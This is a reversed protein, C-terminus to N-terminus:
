VRATLQALVTPLIEPLDEAILGPGFCRACEVHLWAAWCAAHFPSFGRALLGCILGALVDGAGATALWPAAREYCAAHLAVQGDPTAIVTDAGKLLVTCGIQQAAARVADLKSYVPGRDPPAALKAAIKPFLRAFEGAHPTLVTNARVAVRLSPAHALHTLADADLVMARDEALSLAAGLLEAKDSGLGMAPGLCLATVRPDAMKTALERSTGCVSLMIADLRAANEVIAAQPCLLTVAGAGVRLAARAALRAAGGQGPGGALVLAHGHQYKHADRAKEIAPLWVPDVLQVTM